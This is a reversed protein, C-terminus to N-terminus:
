TEKEEQNAAIRVARGEKRRKEEVGRPAQWLETIQWVLEKGEEEATRASAIWSGM